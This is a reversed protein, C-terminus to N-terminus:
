VSEFQEKMAKMTFGGVGEEYKIYLWDNLSSLDVRVTQGEKVNTLKGPTNELVGHITNREINIVSVWMYESCDDQQFEAKILFPNQLNDKKEFAAVFEPWRERAEKVAAVMRPDEGDVEVIPAYTPEEFLTLPDDSQLKERLSDDYENCRQLEPCFIAL